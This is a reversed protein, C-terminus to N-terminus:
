NLSCRQLKISRFAISCITPTPSSQRSTPTPATSSSAHLVKICRNIISIIITQLICVLVYFSSARLVALAAIFKEKRKVATSAWDDEICAWDDEVASTGVGVAATRVDDEIASTGVGVAAIRGDGEVAMEDTGAVGSAVGAMLTPDPDMSSGTMSGGGIHAFLTHYIFFLANIKNKIETHPSGPFSATFFRM